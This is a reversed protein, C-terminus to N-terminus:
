ILVKLFKNYEKEVLKVFDRGKEGITFVALSTFCDSLAQLM